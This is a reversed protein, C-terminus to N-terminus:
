KDSWERTNGNEDVEIIRKYHYREKFTPYRYSAYMQNLVSTPVKARGERQANRDICINLPVKFYMVNINVGDLNLRNLLKNRSRENLHTADVYTNKSTTLHYKITDVFQNWVADENAFYDDGDNLMKFRIADRSIVDEPSVHNALYTSKGSGPVGAIIWLNKSKM